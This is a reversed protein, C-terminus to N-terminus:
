QKRMILVIEGKLKHSGLDTLVDGVKGGWYEEFMKTMERAIFVEANKGLYQEIDKLTRELRLASEYVVVPANMNKLENFKTQRGKKKPLFGAFYFEKNILDSVSVATALANAGPIPLVDIGKDKAVKVLNKGPDSVGPTGADTIYAINKGNILKNLILEYKNEKSHAHLSILKTDIKYSKLLKGSVRTDECAIFDVEKLIRIARLTIDELNGIPTAVM